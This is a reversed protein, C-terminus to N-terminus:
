AAGAGTRRVKGGAVALLGVAGVAFAVNHVLKDFTSVSGLPEVFFALWANSLLAGGAVALRHAAGWGARRSWRAVQIPLAALLASSLAVGWWGVLLPSMSGFRALVLEIVSPLSLTGLAVAGVQWAAPTPQEVPPRPHRGVAFAAGVFAVVVSAAAGLQPTTPRFREHQVHDRFILGAVLLYAAAVIALGTPGLWDSTRREPVFTEVIAIPVGFSWIAHGGIFTLAYLAGIGLAPIYTPALDDHWSGIDRYSTNFLSHDILGAQAVGFGLALLIITPWGRGARRTVERIILAPGGYLPALFLLGLLLAGPDGTSTDYGTLYEASLPALFFLGAAPALRRWIAPRRRADATPAGPQNCGVKVTAAGGSAPEM